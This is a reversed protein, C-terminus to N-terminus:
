AGLARRVAAFLDVGNRRLVREETDIYWLEKGALHFEFHTVQRFIHSCGQFETPSSEDPSWEAIAGEIIGRAPVVGKVKDRYAAAFTWKDVEGMGAFIDTDIGKVAFAPEPAEIRPLVYSVDMVGGGPNHNATAFKIAPITMKEIINARTSGAKEARRVDVALLMIPQTM